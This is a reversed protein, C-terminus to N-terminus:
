DEGTRAPVIALTVDDVGSPHAAAGRLVIDARAALRLPEAILDLLAM